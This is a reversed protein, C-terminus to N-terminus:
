RKAHSFVPAPEVELPVEFATVNAALGAIRQFNAIVGARCDAPIPLGVVEAAADVYQEITEPKM